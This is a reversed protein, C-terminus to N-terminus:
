RRLRLAHLLDASFEEGWICWSKGAREVAKMGEARYREYVARRSQEDQEACRGAYRVIAALEARLGGVSLISDLAKAHEGMM